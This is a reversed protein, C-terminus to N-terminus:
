LMLATSILSITPTTRVYKSRLGKKAMVAYICGWGRGGEGACVYVCVYVGVVIARELTCKYFPTPRWLVYKRIHFCNTSNNYNPRVYM